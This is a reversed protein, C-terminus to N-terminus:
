LVTWCKGFYLIHASAQFFLLCVDTRNSICIRWVWGQWDAAQCWDVGLEQLVHPPVPVLGLGPGMSSKPYCLVLCLGPPSRSAGVSCGRLLCPSGPAGLEARGLPCKGPCPSVCSSRAMGCTGCTHVPNAWNNTVHLLVTCTCSAM